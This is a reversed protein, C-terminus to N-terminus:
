GITIQGEKGTLMLVKAQSLNPNSNNNNDRAKFHKSKNFLIHFKRVQRAKIRNYREERVKDIFSGCRDLETNTVISVLRAQNNKSNNVSEEIIRNIGRVRDQM